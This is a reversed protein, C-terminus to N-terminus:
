RLAEAPLFRGILQLLGPVQERHFQAILAQRAVPVAVAAGLWRILAARVDASPESALVQTAVRLSAEDQVGLAALTDALTARVQAEPEVPLRQLLLPAAVPVEMRRLARAAHERMSRSPDALRTGLEPAFAEDGTNGIGDIVDIQRSGTAASQLEALLV